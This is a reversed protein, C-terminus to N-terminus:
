PEVLDIWRAGAGPFGSYVDLGAGQVPEVNPIPFPRSNRDLERMDQARIDRPHHGFDAFPNPIVPNTLLDHQL